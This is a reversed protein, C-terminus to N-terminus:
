SKGLMREGCKYAARSKNRWLVCVHGHLSFTADVILMACTDVSQIYFHCFRSWVCAIDVAPYIYLILSDCHAIKKLQRLDGMTVTEMTTTAITTWTSFNLNGAGRMKPVYMVISAVREVRVFGSAFFWNKILRKLRFFGNEYTHIEFGTFFPKSGIGIHSFLWFYFEAKRCKKAAYYQCTWVSFLILWCPLRNSCNENTRM